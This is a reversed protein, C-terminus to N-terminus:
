EYMAERIADTLKTFQEFEGKIEGGSRGIVQDNFRVQYISAIHSTNLFGFTEEFICEYKVDEELYGDMHTMVLAVHRAGPTEPSPSFNKEKVTGVTEGDPLLSAVGAACGKALTEDAQERTVCASLTLACVGLLLFRQFSRM